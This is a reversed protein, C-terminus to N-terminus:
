VFVKLTGVPLTTSPESSPHFVNDAKSGQKRKMKKYEKVADDVFKTVIREAVTHCGHVSLADFDSQIVASVEASQEASIDTSSGKLIFLRRTDDQRLGKGYSMMDKEFVSKYKHQATESFVILTDFLLKKCLESAIDDALKNRKQDVVLCCPFKSTNVEDTNGTRSKMPLVGALIRQKIQAVQPKEKDSGLCMLINQFCFENCKCLDSNPLGNGSLWAIRLRSQNGKAESGGASNTNEAKQETLRFGQKDGESYKCDGKFSEDDDPSDSDEDETSKSGNEATGLLHSIEEPRVFIGCRQACEFYKVGKYTGANDGEAKDLAVGAWHGSDFCTRGKFMLTGPRTQKVLVRDGIKYSSLPDDSDEEAKPLMLSTKCQKMMFVPSGSAQGSSIPNSVPPFELHQLPTEHKGQQHELLGERARSIDKVIPQESLTDDRASFAATTEQNLLPFEEPVTNDHLSPLADMKLSIDEDMCLRTESIIMQEPPSPFDDMSFAFEDNRMEDADLPPPPLDESPFSLDNKSSSALDASGYSLVEDIPSLIESLTGEDASCLGEITFIRDDEGKSSCNEAEFLQKQSSVSSFLGRSAEKMAPRETTSHIQNGAAVSQSSEFSNTETNVEESIGLMSMPPSVMKSLKSSALRENLLQVHNNKGESVSLNRSSLCALLKNNAIDEDPLLSATNKLPDSVLGPHKLSGTQPFGMLDRNQDVFLSKGDEKGRSTTSSPKQQESIKSSYIDDSCSSIPVAGKDQKTIVQSSSKNRTCNESADLQPDDLRKASNDSHSSVAAKTKSANAEDSPIFSLLDDACGHDSVDGPYKQSHSSAETSDDKLVEQQDGSLTTNSLATLTEESVNPFADSNDSVLEEPISVDTDEGNRLELESDSISSESIDIWVAFVKQFELLSSDSRASECRLSCSNSKSSSDTSPLGKSFAKSNLEEDSAEHYICELHKLCQGGDVQHIESPM